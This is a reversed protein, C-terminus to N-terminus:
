AFPQTEAFNEGYSGKVALPVSLGQPVVTMAHTMATHLAQEHGRQVELKLADHVQLLPECYIGRRWFDPLVTDWVYAEAQKMQWQAGEQIPTSFAFREAEERVREDYSNIGGIYRIRGSLCRVFGHTQAEAIRAQMYARVGQYLSLTEDLWQQATTEDADVGNKRLEIALGKPGMGMPIGFNIAKAALREPGEAYQESRGGFIRAALQGHLDAGNVYARLLAADQSLHALVRLEIQSEDWQALVHGEDAVWGRKFDKAFRGHEPQALVNPDSASLRGTVVTTTRFTAHVRGDFPWRNVYDPIADVFTSKLKFLERYQRIDGIAPYEPHERELAELIKDNTSERGSSTAKVSELGLVGFLYAAVQDGSNANFAPEGTSDALRGRLSELEGALRVSLAAFRDLDPKLGIRQMRDILPYTGLELQYVADLDLDKARRLYEPFLRVTADADRCGYTIAREADVYDLSASPLPGLQREGAVRIDESQDRWLQAPHDSRLCREVAKYLDTKPISPLKTARSGAAQKAALIERQRAEHEYHENEWLWTLYERALDSEVSGMLDTYSSMRMGCHRLAGEKLGRPELQLLYAMVATDDFGGCEAALTVFDVGVGRGINFDALAAHFVLRPRVRRVRGVFRGILDSRSARILFGTGPQYSFQLSWGAHPFGETDIALATGARLARLAADLQGEDTIEEYRPSPYPDDYLARAPIAGRRSAGLQQFDSVVYCALDSNRLGAAPHYCPFVIRGDASWAIGHVGEMDVDGLFWRTADRGLTVVLSPRVAVLEEELEPEDRELDAVTYVHDSDFFEKYLNTAYWDRLPPLGNVDLLRELEQGTKGVFARGRKAEQWGPNSGVIMRECPIPGRGGVRM